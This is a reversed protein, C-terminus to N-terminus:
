IGNSETLVLAGDERIVLTHEHQAVFSGDRTVFTWGDGKDYAHSSGTSIFTEIAVVSNKQFRNTNLRDYYCPIEKPAEHLSRGIGHGVLNKIVKYGYGAAEGQILKGLEAIRMGPKVTAIAKYLIRKSAEVLPNHKNLDEGLVFSGGNDSWFGELEASVDVNVLDGEKLVTATSPIGHAIENNVSICTWGPFGYTLKPASKAGFRELITRGYEDLEKTTMGVRAYDRMEKLTVAVAESIAKMGALEIQSSISM